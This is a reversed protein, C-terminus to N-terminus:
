IHSLVRGTSQCFSTNQVCVSVHVSPYIASELMGGFVNTKRPIYYDTHLEKFLSDVYFSFSCKRDLVIVWFIAIILLIIKCSCVFTSGLDAHMNQASCDQNM